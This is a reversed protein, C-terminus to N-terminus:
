FKVKFPVVYDLAIAENYRNGPDLQKFAAGRSASRYHYVYAPVVIGSKWGGQKLKHQLFSEGGCDRPWPNSRGSPLVPISDPFLRPYDDALDRFTSVRGAFCFGNPDGVIVPDVTRRALAQEVRDISEQSADLTFGSVYLRVNQLGRATPGPANTLPGLLQVGGDALAKTLHSLSQKAYIVDSNSFVIVDEDNYAQSFGWEAGANNAALWGRNVDFLQVADAGWDAFILNAASPRHPTADDIVIVRPIHTAPCASIFSRVAQAALPYQGYVAFVGFITPATMGRLKGFFTYKHFYL